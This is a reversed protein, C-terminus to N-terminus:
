LSPFERVNYCTGRGKESEDECINIEREREGREGKRRCRGESSEEGTYRIVNEIEREM